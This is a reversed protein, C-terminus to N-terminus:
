DTLFFYASWALIGTWLVLIVLALKPNEYAWKKTLERPPHM